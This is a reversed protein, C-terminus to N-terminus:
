EETLSNDKVAKSVKSDRVANPALLNTKLRGYGM